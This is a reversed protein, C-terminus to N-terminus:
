RHCRVGQMRGVENLLNVMAEEKAIGHAMKHARLGMEKIKAYQEKTAEPIGLMQAYEEKLTIEDISGQNAIIESLKDFLKNYKTTPNLKYKELLKKKIQKVVDSSTQKTTKLDEKPLEFGKASEEYALRIDDDNYKVGAKKLVAKMKNIVNKASYKGRVLAEEIFTGALEILSTFQQTDIGATLKQGSALKKLIENRRDKIERIRITKEKPTNIDETKEIITNIDEQAAEVAQKVKDYQIKNQDIRKNVVRQRVAMAWEVAHLPDVMYLIKKAQLLRGAAISREVLKDTIATAKDYQNLKSHYRVLYMGLATKEPSDPITEDYFDREAKVVDSTVQKYASKVAEDNSQRDYYQEVLVDSVREDFDTDRTLIKAYTQSSLKTKNIEEYARSFVKGLEEDSKNPFAKSLEAKVSEYNFGDSEMAKRIIPM